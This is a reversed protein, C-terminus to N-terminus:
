SERRSSAKWNQRPTRSEGSPPTKSSTTRMPICLQPFLAKARPAWGECGQDVAFHAPPTRLSVGEVEGDLNRTLEDLWTFATRLSRRYPHSYRSMVVQESRLDPLEPAEAALLCLLSSMSNAEVSAMFCGVGREVALSALLPGIRGFGPRAALLAIAPLLLLASKSPTEPEVLTVYWLMAIADPRASLALKKQTTCSALTPLVVRRDIGVPLISHFATWYSVDDAAQMFLGTLDEGPSAELTRWLVSRRVARVSPFLSEWRELTRETAQVQGRRVKWVHGSTGPGGSESSDRLQGLAKEAAYSSAQENLCVLHDACAVSRLLLAEQRGPATTSPPCSPPQTSVWTSLM